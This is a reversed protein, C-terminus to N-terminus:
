GTVVQTLSQTCGFCVLEVIYTSDDSLRYGLPAKCITCKGIHVVQHAYQCLGCNYTRKVQKGCTLCLDKTLDLM